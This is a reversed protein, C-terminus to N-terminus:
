SLNTFILSVIIVAYRLVYQVSLASLTPFSVLINNTRYKTNHHTIFM